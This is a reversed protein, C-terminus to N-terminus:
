AVCSRPTFASYRRSSHEGGPESMERKFSGVVPDNRCTVMADFEVDQAPDFSSCDAPRQGRTGNTKTKAWSAGTQFLSLVAAPISGKAQAQGGPASARVKGAYSFTRGCFFRFVEHCGLCEIDSCVPSLLQPSTKTTDFVVVTRPQVSRLLMCEMLRSRESAPINPYVGAPLFQGAIRLNGCACGTPRNQM